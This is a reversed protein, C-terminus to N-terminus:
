RPRVHNGQLRFALDVDHALGAADYALDQLHQPREALGSHRREVQIADGFLLRELAACLRRELAVAAVRPREARRDIVLHNVSYRAGAPELLVVHDPEVEADDPLVDVLDNLPRATEPRFTMPGRIGPLGEPLTIHPM